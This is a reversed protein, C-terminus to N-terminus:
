AREEEEVTWQFLSMLVGCQRMWLHMKGSVECKMEGSVSEPNGSLASCKREVKSEM